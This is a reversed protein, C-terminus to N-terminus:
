LFCREAEREQSLKVGLAEQGAKCGWLNYEAGEAFGHTHCLCSPIPLWLCYKVRSNSRMRRGQELYM